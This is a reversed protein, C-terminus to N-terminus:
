VDRTVYGNQLFLQPLTVVDPNKDRFHPSNSWHHLTDPRLGTLMSSRSPNCLAQQCYAREFRIGREALRDINPSLASSGYSGLEVRLDDAMLLLVNLKKAPQRAPADAASSPNAAAAVCLVLSLRGFLRLRHM